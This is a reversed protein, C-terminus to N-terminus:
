ASGPKPYISANVVVAHKGLPKKVCEHLLQTCLNHVGNMSRDLTNNVVNLEFLFSQKHHRSFVM